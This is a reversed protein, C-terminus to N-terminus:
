AFHLALLTFDDDFRGGPLQQQMYEHYHFPLGTVRGPRLMAVFDAMQWARGGRDVIEFVGDSMVFLSAAPPLVVESAVFARAIPTGIMRNRTGIPQPAWGAVCCWAPHHGAAAHVLRRSAPDFVGYWITFYMDAHAEMPFLMNLRQLVGAPDGPDTSGLAEPRLANMVAVAHMAAGAGHGSVDILYCCFRGDPLFFAGFADGGLDACPVYHWDIEVPGQAQSQPL